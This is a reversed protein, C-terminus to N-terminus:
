STTVQARTEGVSVNTLKPQFKSSGGPHRPHTTLLTRRRCSIMPGSSDSFPRRRRASAMAEAFWRQDERVAGRSAPKRTRHGDRAFGLHPQRIRSTPARALTASYTGCRDDQNRPEPEARPRPVLDGGGQTGVSVVDGRHREGTELRGVGVSGRDREGVVDVRDAVRHPRRPTRDHEGHVTTGPGRPIRDGVADRLLDRRHDVDVGAWRFAREVGVEVSELLRHGREFLERRLLVEGPSLSFCRSVNRRFATGSGPAASRPAALRVSSARRLTGLVTTQVPYVDACYLSATLSPWVHSPPRASSRLTVQTSRGVLWQGIHDRGWSSATIM